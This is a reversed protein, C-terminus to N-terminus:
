CQLKFGLCSLAKLDIKGSKVRIEARARLALISCVLIGALDYRRGQGRRGDKIERLHEYFM